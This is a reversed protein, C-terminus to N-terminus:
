DGKAAIEDAVKAMCYEAVAAITWAPTCAGTSGPILSGDAVYLGPIEKGDAGRVRGFGDCAKGLVCSGLPHATMGYAVDFNNEDEHRDHTHSLQTTSEKIPMPGSYHIKKDIPDFSNAENWKNLTYALTNAADAVGEAYKKSIGQYSDDEVIKTPPYSLEYGGKGNYIFSGPATNYCVGMNYTNQLSDSEEYWAPYLLFRIFPSAQYQKMFKLCNQEIETSDSDVRTIEDSVGEIYSFYADVSGPGGNSSRVRNPVSQTAMVDGNQGWYKGMYHSLTPLSSTKTDDPNPTNASELLLRATHMSGASFIINKTDIIQQTSKDLEDANIQTVYIRYIPDKETSNPAMAIHTVESLCQIDLLGTEKAKKLYNQDLTKKVGYLQNHDDNNQSYSNMGYWMEGITASPLMTAEAEKVVVGWNFAMEINGIEAEKINPPTETELPKKTAALKQAQEKFSRTSLYSPTDILPITHNDKGNNIQIKAVEITELSMMDKVTDYHPALAQYDLLKKSLDDPFEPDRFALNFAVRSPKQFFTNYVHSTGGLAAGVLVTMNENPIAEVLGPYKQIPKAAYTGSNFNLVSDTMGTQKQGPTFTVATGLPEAEVMWGARADPQRYTCFPPEKVPNDTLNGWWDKGRELLLVPKKDDPSKEKKSYAESIRLASVSGGFGSGIIVTDYTKNPNTM